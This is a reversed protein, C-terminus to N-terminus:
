SRAEAAMREQLAVFEEQDKLQLDYIQRYLGDQALLTAHDGREVIRGQDLVLICDAHKLTLLRQAIIFTTRGKMLGALAEQILHETETDVSSTSDDLILIRPDALLARAIAIRQKQGGSLTVGREGVRTEYGDSLELIFDHAHAAQAAAIVEERSAEPRGYAINEAVTQSFLFPEQMVIGIQGRLSKLQLDRVDHDDVLVRGGSVDYFRPILNTITSKGSGTPGILAVREGPRVHFDIDALVNLRDRYAFAVHEFKVDGRAKGLAIADPRDVVEGPLDIIELIRAASAGATAALNVLFGLRQVPTNLMLVYSIMAFLAGVTINGNLAAPGGFLLLLFISM